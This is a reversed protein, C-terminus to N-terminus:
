VAPELVFDPKITKKNFADNIRQMPSQGLQSLWEARGITMILSMLIPDYVSLRNNSLVEIEQLKKAIQKTDQIGASQAIAVRGSILASYLCDVWEILELTAAKIDIQNIQMDTLDFTDSTQSRWANAIASVFVRSENISLSCANVSGSPADFSRIRGYSAKLKLSGKGADPPFRLLGCIANARQELSSDKSEGISYILYQWIKLTEDNPIAIIGAYGCSRAPVNYAGTMALFDPPNKHFDSEIGM